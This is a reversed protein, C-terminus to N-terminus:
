DLDKTQNWADLILWLAFSCMGVWLALFLLLDIM